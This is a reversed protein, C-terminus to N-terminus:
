IIMEGFLTDAGEPQDDEIRRATEWMGISKGYSVSEVGGEQIDPRYAPRDGPHVWPEWSGREADRKTTWDFSLKRAEDYWEGIRDYKKEHMAQRLARFRHLDFVITEPKNAWMLRLARGMLEVKVRPVGRTKPAKDPLLYVGPQIIFMSEHETLEWEGLATGCPLDLPVDSFIGDTAIMLTHRGDVQSCADIIQARTTATIIGAWVPNAWKPRGISQAFKGYISNLALKLANGKNTKGVRRRTEYVDEVWALPNCKCDPIYEWSETITIDAGAKRAARIEPSWYIGTGRRPYSINGKHSRIPLTGLFTSAKHSFDVRAVYLSRRPTTDQSRKWGGHVLCPLARITAPYASNIDYQYIKRRISGVATIEFRGGYYADRAMSMAEYPVNHESPVKRHNLWASALNGPGQWHMPHPGVDGCVKRFETMLEALLDCEKKNYLRILPTMAQFNSRQNKSAAIRKLLADSGIGWKRLAEVFKCQFFTGVDSIIVWRPKHGKIYAKVRFEKSPLWDIDYNLWRVPRPPLTGSLPTRGKRDLLQLLTRPPLERLIMTVDYSFFYSVYEVGEPLTAIFNLCEKATLSKGTELVASGARLLLYEHRGNINGGEGDVGVFVPAHSHRVAIRQERRKDAHEANYAKRYAARAAPDLHPM